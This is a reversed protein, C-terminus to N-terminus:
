TCVQLYRSPVYGIANDTLRRAGWWEGKQNDLVEFQEGEKFSLVSQSEKQVPPSFDAVARYVEM